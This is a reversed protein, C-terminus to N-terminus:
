KIEELKMGCKPCKGPQDAVVEKHMPCTWRAAVPRQIATQAVPTPEPRSCASAGLAVSLVLLLSTITHM